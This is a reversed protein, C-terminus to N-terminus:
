KKKDKFFYGLSMIVMSQRAKLDFEQGGIMATTAQNSFPGEFKVEALFGLLKISAGVQYGWTASKYSDDFIESPSAVAFSVVPGAFLGAPGIKLAVPVPVDIFQMNYTGNNPTSNASLSYICETNTYLVQPQVYLFVLNIRAMVGIHYGTGNETSINAIQSGGTMKLNPINIGGIVGFDFLQANATLALSLLSLILFRKMTKTKLYTVNLM